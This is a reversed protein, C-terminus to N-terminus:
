KKIIWGKVFKWREIDLSKHTQFYNIIFPIFFLGM